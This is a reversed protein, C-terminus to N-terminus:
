LKNSILEDIVSIEFAIEFTRDFLNFEESIVHVYMRYVLKWIKAM